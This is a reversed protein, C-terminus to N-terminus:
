HTFLNGTEILTEWKLALFAEYPLIALLDDDLGMVERIKVGKVGMDDLMM